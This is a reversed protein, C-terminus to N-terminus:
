TNRENRLVNLREGKEAHKMILEQKYEAKLDKIKELRTSQDQKKLQNIFKNRISHSTSLPTTLSFEHQRDKEELRAKVENERKKTMEKVRVKQMMAERHLRKNKVDNEYQWKLKMVKVNRRFKKDKDILNNLADYRLASDADTIQLKPDLIYKSKRFREIM